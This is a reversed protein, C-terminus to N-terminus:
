NLKPSAKLSDTQKLLNQRNELEILIHDVIVDFDAPKNAYYKLTALFMDKEINHKELVKMYMYGQKVQPNTNSMAFNAYMADVVNFDSLIQIFTDKVILDGSYNEVKPKCAFITFTIIGLILLIPKM